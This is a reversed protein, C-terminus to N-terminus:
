EKHARCKNRLLDAVFPDVDVNGALQIKKEVGCEHNMHRLMISRTSYWKGCKLCPFNQGNKRAMLRAQNLQRAPDSRGYLDDTLSGFNYYDSWLKADSVCAQTSFSAADGYAKEETKSQKTQKM